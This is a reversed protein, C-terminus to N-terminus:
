PHRKKKSGHLAALAIYHAVSKVISPAPTTNHHPLSSPITGLKCISVADRVFFFEKASPLPQPIRVPSLPTPSPSPHSVLYIGHFESRTRINQKLAPTGFRKIMFEEVDVYLIAIYWLIYGVSNEAPWYRQANAAKPERLCGPIPHSRPLRLFNLEKGSASIVTVGKCTRDAEDIILRM